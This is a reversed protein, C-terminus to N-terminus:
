QAAIIDMLCKIPLTRRLNLLYHGMWYTAELPDQSFLFDELSCVPQRDSFKEFRKM